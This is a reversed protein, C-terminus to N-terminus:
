STSASPQPQEQDILPSAQQQQGAKAQGAQKVMERLMEVQRTLEDQQRKQDRLLHQQELLQVQHQQSLDRQFQLAGMIYGSNQAVSMDPAACSSLMLETQAKWPVVLNNGSVDVLEDEDGETESQSENQVDAPEKTSSVILFYENGM